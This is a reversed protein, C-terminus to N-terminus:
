SCDVRSPQLMMMVCGNAANSSSRTSMTTAVFVSQCRVSHFYPQPHLHTQGSPFGIQPHTQGEEFSASPKDFLVSSHCPCNQNPGQRWFRLFNHHHFLNPRNRHIQSQDEPPPPNHNFDTGCHKFPGKRFAIFTIMAPNSWWSMRLSSHSSSFPM